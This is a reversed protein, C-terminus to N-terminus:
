MKTKFFNSCLPDIVFVLVVSAIQKYRVTKDSNVPIYSSYTATVRVM